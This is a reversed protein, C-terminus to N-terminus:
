GDNLMCFLVEELSHINEDLTICRQLTKCVETIVVLFSM